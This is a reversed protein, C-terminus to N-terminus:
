KPRCTWEFPLAFAIGIILIIAFAILVYAIKKLKKKRLQDTTEEPTEQQLPPTMPEGVKIPM